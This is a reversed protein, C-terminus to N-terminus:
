AKARFDQATGARKQPSCGADFEPDPRDRAADLARAIAAAIDPRPLHRQRQCYDNKSAELRQRQPAPM